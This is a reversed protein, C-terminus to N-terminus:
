DSKEIRMVRDKFVDQKMGDVEHYKNEKLRKEDCRHRSIEKMMVITV